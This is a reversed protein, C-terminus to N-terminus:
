FSVNHKTSAEDVDDCLVLLAGNSLHSALTLDAVFKDWSNKDMDIKSLLMEHDFDARFARQQM